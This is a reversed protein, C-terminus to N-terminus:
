STNFSNALDTYARAATLTIGDNAQLFTNAANTRSTNFSNALDTYARAATLTIGDNAQLFTNAIDLEKQSIVQYFTSTEVDKIQWIKGANYWRLVATNGINLITNPEGIGRNVIIDTSPSITSGTNSQFIYSASDTASSGYSIFTGTVSLNGTVLDQAALINFTTNPLRVVNNSTFIPLFKGDAYSRAATLTIGDNAQLFTNANNTRTTNYTNALDTYARARSLTIGDNAQLFTNAGILALNAFNNALDTYARARSLTIGDNAQLFTNAAILALNAFNNARDAYGQLFTNANDTRTTNFTNARDAYGQLFTNANNTYGQLFTNANDTRTVNFSNAKNTYDQLFTNANDTRTTNYTNAKNTYDQLFTNANDTRTTNFSNAKNTYDQLFTNANDTRTTNFSNAKNTYDQLFTNANLIDETSVIKYLQGNSSYKVYANATNFIVSNNVTLFESFTNSAWAYNNSRISESIVLNNGQILENSKILNNAVVTGNSISIANTLLATNSRISGSSIIWGNTAVNGSAVLSLPDTITVTNTALTPVQIKVFVSGSGSFTVNGSFASTNAVYLATGPSNLFLTGNNKFFNGSNLTNVNDILQNTSILWHSFTNSYNIQSIAM